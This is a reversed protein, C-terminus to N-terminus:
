GRPSPKGKRKTSAYQDQARKHWEKNAFLRLGPDQYAGNPGKEAAHKRLFEFDIECGWGPGTPPSFYGDVVEPYPSGAQKVHADAFDNFHELIKANRCTLLLHLHALTTIIGGVSHPAVLVNYTEATSAIKKVELLGGCQNIDPQIVDVCRLEFLDRFQSANYIREGTAIPISTHRAVKKLVAFDQPRCPEEIWGPRFKEIAKAVEIAQHPAFRGHMEILIQV